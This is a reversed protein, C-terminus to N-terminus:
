GKKTRTGQTPRPPKSAFVTDASVVEDTPQLSTVVRGPLEQNNRLIDGIRIQDESVGSDRPLEQKGEEISSHPVETRITENTENEITVEIYEPTLPLIQCSNSISEPAVVSGSENYMIGTSDDVFLNQGVEGCQVRTVRLKKIM